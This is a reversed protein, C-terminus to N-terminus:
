LRFTERIVAWYARAGIALVGRNFLWGPSLWLLRLLLRRVRRWDGRLFSRFYESATAQGLASRMFRRRLSQAAPPLNEFVTRVFEEPPQLNLPHGTWGAIVDFALTSKPDLFAPELRIAEEVHKRADELLGAEYELCALQFFHHARVHNEASKLRAPLEPQAFFKDLMASRARGHASVDGHKQGRHLRISCVVEPSWVIPCGAYALRLWLDWEEIQELEEDFGGVTGLWTHKVMVSSVQLPTSLLLSEVELSPKPLGAILPLPNGAEDIYSWGAAVLGADPERNACAVMRALGDLLWLDDPDLFAVWDGRSAEIGVNRAVSVGRNSGLRVYRVRDEYAALVQDTGDTSGNDIVIVEHNQYSQALVSEVALQAYARRNYTPIVVSVLPGTESM